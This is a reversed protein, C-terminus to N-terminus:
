ICKILDEVNFLLTIIIFSLTISPVLGWSKKTVTILIDLSAWLM